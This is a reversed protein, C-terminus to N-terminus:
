GHSTKDLRSVRSERVVRGETCGQREDERRKGVGDEGTASGVIEGGLIVARPWDVKAAKNSCRNNYCSERKREHKRVGFHNGFPCTRHRNGTSRSYERERRQM